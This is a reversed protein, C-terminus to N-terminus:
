SASTPDDPIDLGAKRLGDIVDELFEGSGMWPLLGRASKPFAPVLALLKDIEVKADETRGMQGYIMAFNVNTYYFGPMSAKHTRALADDYERKRYHNWLPAWHMWRPPDPTLMIAKEALAVGRAWDGNLAITHSLSALLDPSDPNLAIAREAQVSAAKLAKRFFYIHALGLHVEQNRQDLEIARKAAKEARDLSGPRPNFGSGHEDRYL